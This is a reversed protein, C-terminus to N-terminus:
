SSAKEQYWVAQAAERVCAEGLLSMNFKSRGGHEKDVLAALLAGIQNHDWEEVPKRWEESELDNSYFSAFGDRSSFWGDVVDAFEESDFLESHLRRCEQEPILVFLRDTTFNYERPSSLSEMEMPVGTEKSFAKVWGGSIALFAASYNAIRGV